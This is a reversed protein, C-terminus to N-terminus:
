DLPLPSATAVPHTRIFQVLVLGMLLVSLGLIRMESLWLALFGLLFGLLGPVKRLSQILGIQGATVGLEDVAFNNFITQWFSFGLYLFFNAIALTRFLRRTDEM